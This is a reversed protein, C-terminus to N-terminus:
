HYVLSHHRDMEYMRADSDLMNHFAGALKRLLEQTEQRMILGGELIAARNSALSEELENEKTKLDEELNDIIGLWKYREAANPDSSCLSCTCHNM